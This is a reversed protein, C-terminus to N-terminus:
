NIDLVDVSSAVGRRRSNNRSYDAVVFYKSHILRTEAASTPASETVGQVKMAIKLALLLSLSLSSAGFAKEDNV